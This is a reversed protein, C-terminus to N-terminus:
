RVVGALLLVPLALVFADVHVGISLVNSRPDAFDREFGFAAGFALNYSGHFNYSRMGAFLLASIGPHRGDRLLPGVSLVIPFDEVVPVLASAGLSLRLDDFGATGASLYPGVGWDRARQRLFLVDGRVSGCFAAHDFVEGREGVLCGAPLLAANWQPAAHAGRGWLLGSLLALCAWSRGARRCGRANAPASM